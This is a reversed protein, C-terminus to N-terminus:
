EMSAPITGLAVSGPGSRTRSAPVLFPPSAIWAAIQDTYARGRRLHSRAQLCDVNGHGIQLAIVGLVVRIPRPKM